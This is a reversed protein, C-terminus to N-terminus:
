GNYQFNFTRNTLLEYKTDKDSLVIDKEEMEWQIGLSPDNYMVGGEHEPSYYDDIAYFIEATESLVLFGHGFGKPVFLQNKSQETLIESHHMGFTPSGVRLDVIVDQITGQTVGVLKAQSTPNEQYHLGRLVGKTSKSSNFQIPTFKIGTEQEFKKASFWEFFYGRNDRFLKPQVSYAGILKTEKIEM